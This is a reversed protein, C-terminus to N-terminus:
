RLYRWSRAWDVRRNRTPNLSAAIRASLGACHGRSSARKALPVVNFHAIRCPARRFCEGRESRVDHVDPADREGYGVGLQGPSLSHEGDVLESARSAEVELGVPAAPGGRAPCHPQKEGSICAHSRRGDSEAGTWMALRREFLRIAGSELEIDGMGALQGQASHRT